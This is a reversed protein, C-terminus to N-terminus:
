GKQFLVAPPCVTFFAGSNVPFNVVRWLDGHLAFSGFHAAVFGARAATTFFEFLTAPFLPSGQGQESPVNRVVPNGGPQKGQEQQREEGGPEALMPFINEELGGNGTEPCQDDQPEDATQDM